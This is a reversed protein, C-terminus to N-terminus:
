KACYWYLQTSSQFWHVESIYWWVSTPSCSTTQLSCLSHTESEWYYMYDLDLLSPLCPYNIWHNPIKGNVIHLNDHYWNCSLYLQCSSLIINNNMILVEAKDCRWILPNVEWSKIPWYKILYSMKVHNEIIDLKQEASSSLVWILPFNEKDLQWNLGATQSANVM